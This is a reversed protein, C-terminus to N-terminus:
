LYTPFRFNSKDIAIIRPILLFRSNCLVKPLNKLRAHDTWGVWTDRPALRWAASSFAIGGIHGYLSSNIFYRKQAGCLPGSGLYHHRDMMGNWIRSAGRDGSQVPIIEIDGLEHLTCNIQLLRDSVDPSAPKHPKSAFFVKEAQKPLKIVGRDNLKLLATRCSMDKLKGNPSRWDLWRCVRRSLERRSIEPEAALVASIRGIVRDHFEQGCIRM